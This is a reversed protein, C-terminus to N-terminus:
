MYRPCIEAKRDLEIYGVLAETDFHFFIEIISLLIYMVVNLFM